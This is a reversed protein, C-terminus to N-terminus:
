PEKMDLDGWGLYTAQGPKDTTTRLAYGHEHIAFLLVQYLRGKTIYQEDTYM